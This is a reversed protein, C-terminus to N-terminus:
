RYNKGILEKIKAIERDFNNGVYKPQRQVFVDPIVGEDKEDTLPKLYFVPIDIEVKSNPLKLFFYSGGNIGQKNGGSEQGVIMALKNKQAYNLFQFTASANSSDAIIYANGRFNNEYPTVKPFGDNILIEYFGNEAKKYLNQPVGNQIVFKIQEDYTDLYKALDKQSAVNRILKRGKAYEPLEKKALYKALEFGINMDGGGNERLDIILNQIHKARLEAFADALFEKFKINKLKWTISNDIKLYGLSNERIEFKWGDDYTPSKGYRKAMEATRQEKTMAAVKFTVTKNTKFDRAEITFSEDKLPFFLPFYWDFLAFSEAEFRPLELSGIRHSLTNRGDGKTVTLLKEIITKAPIDNIKTIESGKALKKESANETIIIKGDIIQFYFPLYTKGGFLRAQLNEDQNYPNVFTHGCYIQNATQSILKFFEGEALPNKLKAESENLLNEFSEKTQYRYIGPHIQLLTQKFIDFDEKLQAASLIKESRTEQLNESQSFVNTSLITLALIATFFLKNM